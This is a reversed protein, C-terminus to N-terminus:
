LNQIEKSLIEERALERAGIKVLEEALEERTWALIAKFGKKRAFKISARLAEMPSNSWLFLFGRNDYERMKLCLKFNPSTLFYNTSLIKERTKAYAAKSSYIRPSILRESPPDFPKEKGFIEGERTEIELWSVRILPRMGLKRYFEKADPDPWVITRDLGKERSITFVKEMIAKGIGRRRYSAHVELVDLYLNKGFELDEGIFYEAEGVIKGELEAVLAEGGHSWLWELHERLTDKVMWPGGIIILEESHEKLIEESVESVYVRWIGELDRLSAKRIKLDELM